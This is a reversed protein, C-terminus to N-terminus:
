PCVRRSTKRARVGYGWSAVGVLDSGVFCGLSLLCHPPVRVAYPHAAVLAAMLSRPIPEIPCTM